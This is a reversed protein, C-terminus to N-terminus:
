STVEAPEATLGSWELDFIRDEAAAKSDHFYGLGIQERGDRYVHWTYSGTFRGLDDRSPRKVIEGRHGDADLLHAAAESATLNRRHVHGFQDVIDFLTLM